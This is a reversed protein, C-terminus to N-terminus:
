TDLWQGAKLDGVPKWEGKRREAITDLGDSGDHAISNTRVETQWRQPGRRWRGLAVRLVQVLFTYRAMTLGGPTKNAKLCFRPKQKTQFPVWFFCPPPM